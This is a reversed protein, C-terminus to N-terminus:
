AAGPAGSGGTLDARAEESDRVVPEFLQRVVGFPLSAELEAGLAALVRLGERGARERAAGLLRSKGIGGPGQVVVVRGRGAGVEHVDAALADLETERERLDGEM